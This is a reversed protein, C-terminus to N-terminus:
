GQIWGVVSHEGGRAPSYSGVIVLLTPITPGDGPYSVRNRARCVVECNLHHSAEKEESRLRHRHFRQRSCQPRARRGYLPLIPIELFDGLLAGAPRKPRV